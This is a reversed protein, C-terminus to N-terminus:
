PSINHMSTWRSHEEACAKHMTELMRLTSNFVFQGHEDADSDVAPLQKNLDGILEEISQLEKMFESAIQKKELFRFFFVRIFFPHNLEIPVPPATLKKLFLKKGSNTLSYLHKNPKTTQFVIEKKVQSAAELKRLIPYIKNLTIGYFMMMKGSITKLRYGTKPGSMLFGMVMLEIDM